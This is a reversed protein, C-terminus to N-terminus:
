DPNMREWFTDGAKTLHLNACTLLYKHIGDAEGTRGFTRVGNTLKEIPTPLNCLLTDEFLNTQVSDSTICWIAPAVKNQNSHAHTIKVVPIEM